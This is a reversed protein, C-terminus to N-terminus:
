FENWGNKGAQMVGGMEKLSSKSWKRLKGVLFQGNNQEFQTHHGEYSLIIHVISKLLTEKVRNLLIERQGSVKKVVREKLM